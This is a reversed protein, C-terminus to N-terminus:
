PRSGRLGGGGPTADHHEKSANKQSKAPQSNIKIYTSGGRNGSGGKMAPTSLLEVAALPSALNEGDASLPPDGLPITTSQKTPDLDPASITASFTNAALSTISSFLSSKERPSVHHAKSTSTPSVLEKAANLCTDLFGSDPSLFTLGSFALPNYKDRLLNNKHNLNEISLSVFARTPNM